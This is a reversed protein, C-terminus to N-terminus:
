GARDRWELVDITARARAAVKDRVAIFEPLARTSAFLPCRDIWTLDVLGLAEASDMSGVVAASDGQFASVEAALQRFLTPRRRARGVVRGWEALTEAVRGAQGLELVDLLEVVQAQLAFPRELVHKRLAAAAARDKRWLCLRAMLFYGAPVRNGEAFRVDGMADSPPPAKLMAEFMSEFMSWDGLLARGRLLDTAVLGMGPELAAAAALISLGREPEGAELLMRGYLENVDSSSPAVRIAERLERACAVPDGMMWAVNALAARAEGLHPALALARAAAARGKTESQDADAGESDFMFRRLQAQAYAALITPDNPALALAQEFLGVAEMTKDRWGVRFAHRAQLYLDLARGDTPAVRSPATRRLTLAEAIADAAEDSVMLVDKEPRDFRKAWLQFGDAVSVVRAGVRIVDGVRRLSGDVVVDVRLERGIERADRDPAKFRALAGKALVRLGPTMSLADVLDDSLGEAYYDDAASGNNRFPLVAVTKADSELAVHLPKGPPRSPHPANSAPRTMAALLTTIEKTSSFRDERRRAMCRLVLEAVSPPVDSRRARPDPPPQFLRAAALSWVSDGSWAPAGVLCEYLMAGLAYIDARADLDKAGEVQEPAMYAPTGLTLGVTATREADSLARAIGFDTLVVRGDKALMVNDPKLDRHVIGAEHAASLGACMGDTLMIVVDLPLAGERLLKSSLSEGEVFEMTLFKEGESEGIDFTRAVNRHTVRRALKVEQRFRELMGPQNLLDVRLLKLAVVEDLEKDRARYVTGMGGAGVLGLIEYRAGFVHRAPTTAPPPSSLVPSPAAESVAMTQEEGTIREPM